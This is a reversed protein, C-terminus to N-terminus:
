GWVLITHPCRRNGGGKSAVHGVPWWLLACRCAQSPNGLAVPRRPRWLRLSCRTDRFSGSGISIHIPSGGTTSHRTLLGPHPLCPALFNCSFCTPAIGHSRLCDQPYCWTHICTELGSQSSPGHFVQFPPQLTQMNPRAFEVPHKGCSMICICVPLACALACFSSGMPMCRCLLVVGLYIDAGM